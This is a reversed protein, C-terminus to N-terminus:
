ATQHLRSLMWVACSFCFITDVGSMIEHAINWVSLWSLCAWECMSQRAWQETEVPVGMASLGLGTGIAPRSSLLCIFVVDAQGARFNKEGFGEGLSLLSNSDLTLKGVLPVSLMGWVMLRASSNPGPRPPM